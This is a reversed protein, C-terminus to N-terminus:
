VSSQSVSHIVRVKPVLSKFRCLGGFNAQSAREDL